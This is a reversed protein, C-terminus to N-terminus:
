HYSRLVPVVSCVKSSVAQIPTSFHGPNQIHVPLAITQLCHKARRLRDHLLSTLALQRSEIGAPCRAAVAQRLQIIIM